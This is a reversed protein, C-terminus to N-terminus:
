TSQGRNDLSLGRGRVCAKVEAESPLVPSSCAEVRRSGSGDEDVFEDVGVPGSGDPRVPCSEEASTVPSVPIRGYTGITEAFKRQRGLM